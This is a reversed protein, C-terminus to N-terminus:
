VSHDAGRCQDFRPGGVQGYDGTRLLDRLSSPEYLKRGSHCCQSANKDILRFGKQIKAKREPEAWRLCCNAAVPMLM